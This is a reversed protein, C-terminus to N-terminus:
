GQRVEEGLVSLGIKKFIFRETREYQTALNNMLNVVQNYGKFVTTDLRLKDQGQCRKRVGGYSEM